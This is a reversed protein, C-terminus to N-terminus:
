AADGDGGELADVDIPKGLLQELAAVPVYLRNNIRVTPLDGRRAAEYSPTRSLGLLEGAQPVTLLYKNRVTM